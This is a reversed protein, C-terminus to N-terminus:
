EAGGEGLPLHPTPHSGETEREKLPRQPITLAIHRGFGVGKLTLIMMIRMFGAVPEHGTLTKVMLVSKRLPQQGAWGQLCRSRAIRSLSATLVELRVARLCCAQMLLGPPRAGAMGLVGCGLVSRRIHPLPLHSSSEGKEPELQYKEVGARERQRRGTGM